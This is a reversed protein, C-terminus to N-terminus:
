QPIKNMGVVVLPDGVRPAGHARMHQAACAKVKEFRETPTLKQWKPREAWVLPVEVNVLGGGVLRLFHVEALRQTNQQATAVAEFDFDQM